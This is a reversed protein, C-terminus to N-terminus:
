VVDEDDEEDDRSDENEDEDEDRGGRDNEDREDGRADEARDRTRRGDEDDDRGRSNDEDDQGSRREDDPDAGGDPVYPAFIADGDLEIDEVASALNDEFADETSMLASMTLIAPSGREAEELERVEVYTVVPGDSDAEGGIMAYAVGDEEGQDLIELDDLGESLGDVYAEVVEETTYETTLAAVVLNGGTTVLALQDFGRESVTESSQAEWGRGWEVEYGYSPSEYTSDDILGNDAAAGAGGLVVGFAALGIIGARLAIWPSRTPAMHRLSPLTM